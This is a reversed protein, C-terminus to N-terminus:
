IEIEGATDEGLEKIQKIIEDKNNYFMLKIDKKKKEKLESKEGMKDVYNDIVKSLPDPLKDKDNLDSKIEEIDVMRNDILDELIKEKIDAIYKKYKGDYKFAIEDHFNTMFTNKYAKYKENDSIHVMYILEDLSNYKKSLIALKEEDTLIQNLREQGFPVIQINNNQIITGNNNLQKNIKNLTKPRTKLAKELMTRLEAIEKKLELVESKEKQEKKINKDKCVKEHKSRSSCHKYVNTCYKCKFMNHSDKPLSEALLVNVKGESKALLNSSNKNHINKIHNSRSSYSAYEKKCYKCIVVM